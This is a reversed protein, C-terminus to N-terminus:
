TVSLALAKNGLTSAHFIPLDERYIKRFGDVRGTENRTTYVQSRGCSALMITHDTPNSGIRGTHTRCEGPRGIGTLRISNTGPLPQAQGLAVMTMAQARPAAFIYRGITSYVPVVTSVVKKSMATPPSRMLRVIRRCDFCRPEAVFHPRSNGHFDPEPFARRSEQYQTVVRPIAAISCVPAGAM